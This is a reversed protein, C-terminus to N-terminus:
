IRVASLNVTNKKKKKKNWSGSTKMFKLSSFVFTIVTYHPMSSEIHKSYINTKKYLYTVTIIM